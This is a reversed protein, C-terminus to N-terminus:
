LVSVHDIWERAFWGSVVSVFVTLVSGAPSLSILGIASLAFGLGILAGWARKTSPRLRTQTEIIFILALALGFLGGLVAKKWSAQGYFSLSSWVGLVGLCVALSCLAWPTRFVWAITSNTSM